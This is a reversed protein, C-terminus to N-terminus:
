SSLVDFRSEERVEKVEKVKRNSVRQKGEIITDDIRSRKHQKRM